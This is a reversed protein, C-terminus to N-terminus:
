EVVVSKALNRPQDVDTGRYVATHYALLQLPVTLAMPLLYPTIAGLEIIEWACDKLEETAVDTIAIVQGGRTEVEKLNSLAKDYNVGDHGLVVVVPTDETILAIPGHKMEGAPYGEAHIYSLEKVKLAGELAIPYLIGRGLFLYDGKARGYKRSIREVQKDFTLARSIISPLHVLSDLHGALEQKSITGRVEALRLALLYGATLQTLFAKTSAVSIEPGAHTYIVNGSQRTMTSGVVNCILATPAGASIALSLSGMTDITEGSQSIAVFLTKNDIVPQRYRYESGYDVEVPIKALRELYFKTVLAAHWATGCAVLCVRNVSKLTEESLKLGELIVSPNDLDYRGRLTDAIVQPQEHIEKHMFHRFGGKEATVPDWSIDVVPREVIQGDHYITVAGASVEAIDGEDLILVRRTYELLAPIDSAVLCEKDALGVVLPNYRRSVFITDPYDSCIIVLAYSGQIESLAQQVAVSVSKTESYYHNVLHAVVETDTESKFKCGLELLRNKLKLYNEIIGNHVVAIKGAIHPHANTESPRGHTAWRTHGLGINESSGSATGEAMEEKLLDKLRQLKGEARSMKFQGDKVVAVGSSDYGRYALKDLGSIIVPIAPRPGVYGMIGCM